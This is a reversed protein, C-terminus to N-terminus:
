SIRGARSRLVCAWGADFMCGVCAALFLVRGTRERGWGLTEGLAGGAELVGRAGGAELVGGRETPKWRLDGRAGGAEVTFGGLAGDAELM